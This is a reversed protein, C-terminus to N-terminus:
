VLKLNPQIGFDLSFSEGKQFKLEGLYSVMAANDTCYLLDPFIIRANPLAIHLNKRLRNNAAVGGAIVCTNCNTKNLARRTKEVLTDIIAQQYSAIVDKISLDEREQFRDMFYLLSTKLGSFSFELSKKGMLGLPFSVALPNGGKAEKEIAPGGPYGLGMIRAGKDFAEGAADDRTEGLLRYDSMNLVYWLQTHGGSVLLCVFPFELTPDALFNAFIHAELHNIPLVSINLAMGLGKAFSVGTLLTGALGPGATVSIAKLNELRCKAEEVAQHVIYNLLKEHERSAIEPVVGGFKSHIVQSSVVSSLIRGERCISAATEDCSTEIGLISM